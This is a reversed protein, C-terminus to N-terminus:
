GNESHLPVARRCRGSEQELTQTGHLRWLGQLRGSHQQPSSHHTAPQRCSGLLAPRTLAGRHPARDGSLRPIVDSQMSGGSSFGLQAESAAASANGVESTTVDTQQRQAPCRESAKTWLKGGSLNEPPYPMAPPKDKRQAALPPVAQVWCTRADTTECNQQKLTNTFERSAEAAMAKIVVATMEVQSWPTTAFILLTIM